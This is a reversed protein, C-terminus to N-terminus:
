LQKIFEEWSNEEEIENIAAETRVVTM